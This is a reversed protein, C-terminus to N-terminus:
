LKKMMKQRSSKERNWSVRYLFILIVTVFIFYIVMSFNILPKRENSCLQGNYVFSNILLLGSIDFTLGYIRVRILGLIYRLIEGPIIYACGIKLWTLTNDECSYYQSSAKSRMFIFYLSLIHIITGTVGLVFETIPKCTAASFITVDEMKTNMYITYFLNPLSALLSCLLTQVAFYLSDLPDYRLNKFVDVIYPRHKKM